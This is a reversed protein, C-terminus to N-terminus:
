EETAGPAEVSLGYAADMLEQEVRRRIRRREGVKMLGCTDIGRLVGFVFGFDYAAQGNLSWALEIFHQKLDPLESVSISERKRKARTIFPPAVIDKFAEVPDPNKKPNWGSKWRIAKKAAKKRGPNGERRAPAEVSLSYVADIVQQEIYRRIRRREAVDKIGCTDIGRLVGFTFGFDFGEKGYLRSAIDRFHRGVKPVGTATIGERRRKPRSVFPPALIDKMTEFLDPNRTPRLRGRPNRQRSRRPRKERRDSWRAGEEVLWKNIGTYEQMMYMAYEVAEGMNNFIRSATHKEGSPFKLIVHYGGPESAGLPGRSGKPAERYFEVLGDLSPLGWRMIDRFDSKSRKGIDAKTARGKEQPVFQVILHEGFALSPPSRKTILAEQITRAEYGGRRAAAATGREAGVGAMTEKVVDKIRRAASSKGGGSASKKVGGSNVVNGAGDYVVWTYQNRKGVGSGTLPDVVRGDWIVAILPTDEILFRENLPLRKGKGMRRLMGGTKMLIEERFEREQGGLREAEAEGYRYSLGRPTSEGGGALFEEEHLKRGHLRLGRGGLKRSGEKVPRPRSVESRRIEEEVKKKRGRIDGLKSELQRYERELRPADESLPSSEVYAKKAKSVPGPRSRGPGLEVDLLALEQNTLTELERYLNRTDLEPYKGIGVAVEGPIRRGACLLIGTEYSKGPDPTEPKEALCCYESVEEILIGETAFDESDGFLPRKKRGIDQLKTVSVAGIDRARGKSCVRVIIRRLRKTGAPPFWPHEILYGDGGGPMKKKGIVTVELGHFDEALRTTTFIEEFIARASQGSRQFASAKPKGPNSRRMMKTVRKGVNRILTARKSKCPNKHLKHYLRM